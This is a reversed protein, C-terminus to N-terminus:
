QRSGGWGTIAVTLAIAPLFAVSITGLGLSAGPFSLIAALGGIIVALVVAIGLVAVPNPGQGKVTQNALAYSGMWPLFTGVMWWVPHYWWNSGGGIELWRNTYTGLPQLASVDILLFVVAAALGIGASGAIGEITRARTWLGPLVTVASVGVLVILSQAAVELGGALYRSVISFLFVLAAELVGLQVAHRLVRLLNTQDYSQQTQAVAAM